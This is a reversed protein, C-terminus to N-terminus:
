RSYSVYLIRVAILPKAKHVSLLCDKPSLKPVVLVQSEGAVALGAVAVRDELRQRSPEESGAVVPAM